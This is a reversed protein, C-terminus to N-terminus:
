GLNCNERQPGKSMLPYWANYADTTTRGDLIFPYAATETYLTITCQRNIVTEKVLLFLLGLLFFLAGVIALAIAWTPTKKTTYSTDAIRVDRIDDFRIAYENGVHLRDSVVSMEYVRGNLRAFGM